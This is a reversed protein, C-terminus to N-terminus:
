IAPCFDVARDATVHNSARWLNNYYRDAEERSGSLNIRPLCGLSSAIMRQGRWEGMPRPSADVELGERGFVNHFGSDIRSLM